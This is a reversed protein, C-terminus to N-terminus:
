RVHLGGLIDDLTGPPLRWLEADGLAMLTTRGLDLRGADPAGPDDRTLVCSGAQLVARCLERGDPLFEALRLRGLRLVWDAPADLDVLQSPALLVPRRVEELDDLLEPRRMFLRADRILSLTRHQTASVDDGETSHSSLM